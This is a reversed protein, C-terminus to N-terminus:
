DPDYNVPRNELVVALFSEHCGFMSPSKSDRNPLGVACAKSIVFPPAAREAVM